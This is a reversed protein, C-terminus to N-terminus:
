QKITKHRCPVYTKRAAAPSKQQTVAVEKGEGQGLKEQQQRNEIQIEVVELVPKGTQELPCRIHIRQDGKPRCGRCDVTRDLQEPQSVRNCVAIEVCPVGDCHIQIKFRCAHNQRQDAESFEKFCSRFGFSGVCDTCHDGKAM